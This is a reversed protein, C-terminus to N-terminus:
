AAQAKNYNFMIIAVMEKYTAVSMGWYTNTKTNYFTYPNAGPCKGGFPNYRFEWVPEKNGAIQVYRLLDEVKKRDWRKTYKTLIDIEYKIQEQIQKELKMTEYERERM